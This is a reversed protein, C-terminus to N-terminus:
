GVAGGSADGHDGVTPTGQREFNRILKRRQRVYFPLYVISFIAMGFFAWRALGRNNLGYLILLFPEMIFFIMLWRGQGRQLDLLAAAVPMDQASLPQDRLLDKMVLRRRRWGYQLVRRYNPRGYLRRVWLMSGVLFIGVVGLILAVAWAPAGHHVGIPRHVVQLVIVVGCFAYLLGAAGMLILTFRISRRAAHEDIEEAFPAPHLDPM